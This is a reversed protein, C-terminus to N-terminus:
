KLANVVIRIDQTLGKAVNRSRKPLAAMIAINFPLAEAANSAQSDGLARGVFLFILVPLGLSGVVGMPERMFFKIEVWTLKWLGTFM